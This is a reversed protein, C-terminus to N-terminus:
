GAAPVPHPQGVAPEPPVEARVDPRRPLGCVGILVPILVVLDIAAMAPRNGANAADILLLAYPLSYVLCIGIGLLRHRPGPTVVLWLGALVVWVLYHPWTIPSLVVSAAGVTLAAEMEQGAQFHRRARLMAFAAVALGLGIWVVPLQGAAPLWRMLAAHISLNDVRAPNGFQDSKGLHAWFFLSDGPLIAFGIGTAVGFAATAVAAQRRQGTALFYPIFILPTLKIAGAVGVLVGQAKPPVVGAVDLFALTIIILTVQGSTLQSFMPMSLLLVLGMLSFRLAFRWRGPHEAGGAQFSRRALVAALVLCLAITAATWLQNGPEVPLGGLWAIVLIAVPPYPLAPYLPQQAAVTALAARYYDLDIFVFPQTRVVFFVSWAIGVAIALSAVAVIAVVRRIASPPSQLESSRM